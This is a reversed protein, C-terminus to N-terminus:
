RCGRKGNGHGLLMKRDRCLSPIEGFCEKLCSVLQRHFKGQPKSLSYYSWLGQKKGVVLGYRKLYALHRSVKSQGAKLIQMLDCVCLERRSSLLYLIRLRTEDAFARFMGGTKSTPM